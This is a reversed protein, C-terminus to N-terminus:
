HIINLSLPPNDVKNKENTQKRKQKANSLDSVPCWLWKSLVNKQSTM